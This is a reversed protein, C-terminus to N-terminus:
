KGIIFVVLIILPFKTMETVKNNKYNIKIKKKQSILTLINCMVLYCKIYYLRIKIITKDSKYRKDNLTLIM